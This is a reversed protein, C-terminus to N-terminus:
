SENLPRTRSNTLLGLCDCGSNKRTKLFNRRRCDVPVQLGVVNKQIPVAHDEDIQVRRRQAIGDAIRSVKECMECGSDPEIRQWLFLRPVGGRCKDLLVESIDRLGPAFPKRPM